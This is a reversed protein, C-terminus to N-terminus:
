DELIFKWDNELWYVWDYCNCEDGTWIDCHPGWFWILIFKNM